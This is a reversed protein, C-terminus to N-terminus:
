TSKLLFDRSRNEFYYKQLVDVAETDHDIEYDIRPGEEKSAIITYTDALHENLTQIALKRKRMLVVATQALINEFSAMVTASDPSPQKLLKNRHELAKHYQQLCELYRVDTAALTMDLFRRRGAPSGRILQLDEFSMIVVPFQGIFESLRAVKYGNIAVSKEKKFIELKIETQGRSEHEIEFFLLAQAHQDQILENMYSSRFSRLATILSISELFSTKGQGNSGVFFNVGETLELFASNINRFQQLGVKRIIM